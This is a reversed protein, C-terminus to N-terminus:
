AMEAPVRARWGEGLSGPQAFMDYPNTVSLHEPTRPVQAGGVYAIRKIVTGDDTRAIVVDGRQVHGLSTAILVQGSTYTPSMSDGQVVVLFWPSYMWWLAALCLIGGSLYLLGRDIRRAQRHPSSNAPFTRILQTGRLAQWDQTSTRCLKPQRAAHYAYCHHHLVHRSFMAALRHWVPDLSHLLRM